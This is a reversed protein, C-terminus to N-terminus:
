IKSSEEEFPTLLDEIPVGFYEKLLTLQDSRFDLKGGVVENTIRVFHHYTLGLKEALEERTDRAEGRKMENLLRKIGFKRVVTTSTTTQQM